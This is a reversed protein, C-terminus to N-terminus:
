AEQAFIGAELISIQSFLQQNATKLSNIEANQNELQSCKLSLMQQCSEIRSNLRSTHDQLEKKVVKCESGM